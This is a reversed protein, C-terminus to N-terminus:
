ALMTYENSPCMASTRWRNFLSRDDGGIGLQDPRRHGWRSRSAETRKAAEEALGLDAVLGGGDGNAAGGAIAGTDLAREPTLADGGVRFAWRTICSRM